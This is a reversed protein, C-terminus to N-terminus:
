CDLQTCLQSHLKRHYLIILNTLVLCAALVHKGINIIPFKAVFSSAVHDRPRSLHKQGNVIAELYPDQLYGKLFASYKSSLADIDTSQIIRDQRSVLPGRRSALLGTAPRNAHLGLTSHPTRQSVPFTDNPRFGQEPNQRDAM